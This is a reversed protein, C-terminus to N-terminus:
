LIKPTILFIIETKVKEITHSQFPLGLLPIEGIIPIKTLNKRETESLLGAIMITEQDQVRVISQARRTTIVPFEGAKTTRWEAISSVEPMIKTTILNGDVYPTIKLHIGADLYDVRWQVGTGSNIPVAFPVRSGINVSAEEGSITMIQPRALVTAKGNAILASLTASVESPVLKYSAGLTRASFKGPPSGWAIGIEQLGSETIELVECELLVQPRLNGIAESISKRGDYEFPDNMTQPHLIWVDKGKEIAIEHAYAIQEIVRPLKINELWVSVRGPTTGRLGGHIIMNTSSIQSIGQLLDILPIEKTIVWTQAPRTVSKRSTKRTLLVSTKDINEVSYGGVKSGLEVVQTEGDKKLFVFPQGEHAVTGLLEIFLNNGLAIKGQGLSISIEPIALHGPQYTFLAKAKQPAEPPEIPVIADTPTPVNPSGCGFLFLFIFVFFLNSKQV